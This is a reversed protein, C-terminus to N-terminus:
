LPEGDPGMQDDTWAHEEGTSLEPQALPLDVGAKRRRYPTLGLADAVDRALKAEARSQAFGPHAQVFGSEMTAYPAELALRLHREALRCRQVYEEVLTVDVDAVPGYSACARVVRGWFRAWRASYGRDKLARGERRWQERLRDPPRLAARLGRGQPREVPLQAVNSRTM